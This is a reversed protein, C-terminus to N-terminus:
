DSAHNVRSSLRFFLVTFFAVNHAGAILAEFCFYWKAPDTKAVFDGFGVTTLITTAFYISNTLGAAGSEFPPTSDPPAFGGGSVWGYAFQSILVTTYILYIIAAVVINERLSAAGFKLESIIACLVFLNYLTIGVASISFVVKAPSYGSVAWQIFVGFLASAFSLILYKNDCLSDRCCELIRCIDIYKEAQLQNEVLFPIITQGALREDIM